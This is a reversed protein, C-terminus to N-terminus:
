FQPINQLDRSHPSKNIHPIKHAFVKRMEKEGPGRQFGIFTCKKILKPSLNEREKSM